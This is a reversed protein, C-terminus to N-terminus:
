LLMQKGHKGTNQRSRHAAQPRDRDHRSGEAEALRQGVGQKGLTHGSSDAHGQALLGPTNACHGGRGDNDGANQAINKAWTKAFDHLDPIGNGLTHSVAGSGM